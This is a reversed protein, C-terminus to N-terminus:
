KCCRDNGYYFWGEVPYSLPSNSVTFLPHTVEPPPPTGGGVSEIGCGALNNIGCVFIGEYGESIYKAFTGSAMPEFDDAHAGFVMLCKRPKEKVQANISNVPILLLLTVSLLLKMLGDTKM